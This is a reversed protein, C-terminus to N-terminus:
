SLVLRSEIGKQELYEMKEEVDVGNDYITYAADKDLGVHEDLYKVMELRDEGVILAGMIKKQEKSRNYHTIMWKLAEPTCFSVYYCVLMDGDIKIYPNLYQNIMGLQDCTIPNNIFYADLESGSDCVLRVILSKYKKPPVDWGVFVDRGMKDDPYSWQEDLYEPFLELYRLVMDLTSYDTQLRLGHGPLKYRRRTIPSVTCRAFWWAAFVGEYVINDPGIMPNQFIKGTMPCRIAEEWREM